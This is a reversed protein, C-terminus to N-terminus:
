VAERGGDASRCGAVTDVAKYTLLNRAFCFLYIAEMKIFCFCFQIHISFTQSTWGFPVHTEQRRAPASPSATNVERGSARLAREAKTVELGSQRGGGVGPQSYGGHTAPHPFPRM